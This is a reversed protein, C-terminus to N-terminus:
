LGVEPLEQARIGRLMRTLAEEINEGLFLEVPGVAFVRGLEDVALGGM